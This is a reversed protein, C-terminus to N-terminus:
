PYATTPYGVASQWAEIEERGKVLAHEVADFELKTFLSSRIVETIM